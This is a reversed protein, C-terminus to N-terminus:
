SLMTTWVKLRSLLLCASRQPHLPLRAEYSTEFWGPSCRLVSRPEFKLLISFLLFFIIQEKKDNKRDQVCGQVQAGLESPGAPWSAELKTELSVRRM